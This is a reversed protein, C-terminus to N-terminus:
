KTRLIKHKKSYYLSIFYLIICYLLNLILSSYINKILFIHNYDVNNFIVSFLYLIMRYLVISIFSILLTISLRNSLIYFLFDIIFGILIFIFFNFFITNSYVIDYLLGLIAIYKFYRYHNNNFYPFIIVLSIITLLPLFISNPSIYRLLIGDLIFSVISLVIIM